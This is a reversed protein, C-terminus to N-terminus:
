ESVGAPSSMTMQDVGNEGLTGYTESESPFQGSRVDVCYATVAEIITTGTAAYRRAFYPPDDVGFGVLDHFIMVQGDCGPGAGFGITPVDVLDTVRTAVSGAVCSLVIAFCGSQAMTVADSGLQEAEREAQGHVDFSGIMRVSQPTVGLHAMVPIEARVLADVVRPRCGELKVADAGARVLQAANRVADRSGTHYSLWPLDAVIMARPEARAVAGVHHVMDAVSVHLATDYGLVVHGLSDGVLLMDVGARDACVATPTDYATLMALATAGLKRKRARVSPVTVREPM